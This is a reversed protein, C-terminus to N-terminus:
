AIFEAENLEQTFRETIDFADLIDRLYDICEREDSM